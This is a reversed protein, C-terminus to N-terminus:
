QYEKPLRFTKGYQTDVDFDDWVLVPHVIAQTPIPATILDVLGVGMRGMMNVTGKLMGGFVGFVINSDNTTNIINKPIELVSTTLNAFGNGAKELVGREYSGHEEAQAISGNAALIAVLFIACKNM